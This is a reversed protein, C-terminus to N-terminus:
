RYESIYKLSRTYIPTYTLGSTIEGSVSIQSQVTSSISAEDLVISGELISIFGGSIVSESVMKIKILRGTNNTQTINTPREVESFNVWGQGLGMPADYWKSLLTVTVSATENTLSKSTSGGAHAQNVIVNDDNTMVEVTFETNNNTSGSVQLVDGVELGAIAGIGVLAINNTSNTFTATGTVVATTRTVKPNILEFWGSAADYVIEIRGDIDGAAPDTGGSLKINKVDLGAVNVTSAGTNANAAEYRARMGDTYATPAQKSGIETLVYADAAGSDTYFDGNAVYDAIGKGLQELDGASLAQGTGKVVNNIESMSIVSDALFLLWNTGGDLSPQNGANAATQSEWYQGDEKVVEALGYSTTPVWDSGFNLSTDGGIPDRQRLQEGEATRLVVRYTGTGFVSPVTGDGNIKLPNANAITEESDAYTTKRVTSGGSEYFDLLGSALPDGNDDLIQELANILRAM